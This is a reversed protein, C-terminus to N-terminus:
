EGRQDHAAIRTALRTGTLNLGIWPRSGCLRTLACRRGHSRRGAALRGGISASGSVLTLKCVEVAINHLVVAGIVALVSEGAGSSDAVRVGRPHNTNEVRAMMSPAPNSTHVFSVM